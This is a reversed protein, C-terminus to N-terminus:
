SPSQCCTPLGKLALPMWSKPSCSLFVGCSEDGAKSGGRGGWDWRLLFWVSCESTLWDRFREWLIRKGWGAKCSWQFLWLRACLPSIISHDPAWLIKGQSKNRKQLILFFNDQNETKGFAFHYIVFNFHLFAWDLSKCVSWWLLHTPQLLPEVSDLASTNFTM